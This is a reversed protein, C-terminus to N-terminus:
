DLALGARREQLLRTHSRVTKRELSNDEMNVNAHNDVVVRREGSHQEEGMIVLIKRFLFYVKCMWILAKKAYFHFVIRFIKEKKKAFIDCILFHERVFMSLCKSKVM